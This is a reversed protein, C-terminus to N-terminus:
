SMQAAFYAAGKLGVLGDCVINVPIEELLKSMRGKDLFNKMFRGDQLQPALKAAIGGCLYLGSFPLTTLALNGAAAGYVNIFLDLARLAMPDNQATAYYSIDAAAEKNNFVLRHLETNEKEGFRPNDRVYKYINVLGLGSLVRELSVRRIKTQLYQLLAMQEDDSPAFDVHGGETPSVSIDSGHQHILAVGLGTGAGIIASVGKAAVQGQQITIFDDRTLVQLGYGIARFDNILKVRQINLTQSLDDENVYWPLNTLKVTGNAIPGAVAFCARDISADQYECAHLFQQIIETLTAYDGSPYVQQSIIQESEIEHYEVLALRTNTGGIDGSLILM